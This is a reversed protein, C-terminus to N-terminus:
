EILVFYNQHKDFAIGLKRDIWFLVRKRGYMNRLVFQQYIDSEFKCFTGSLKIKRDKTYALCEIRCAIRITMLDVTGKKM